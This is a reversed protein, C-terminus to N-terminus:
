QRLLPQVNYPQKLQQFQVMLDAVRQLRTKNLSIPYSGVTMTSATKSDIDKIYTPLIQEVQRRDAAATQAKIMARQFAAVTKPNKKWFSEMGVFGAISLGETPGTATDLVEVVGLKEQAETLFPENFWAADVAGKQLTGPMQPFPVEVLKVSNPDVGAAKLSSSLVLPGFGKLNNIAIKKGALDAPKRVGANPMAGVVILHEKAAYGDVAVRLQIGKSAATIVGPYSSWALDVGGSQLRTIAEAGNALFTPEVTLGEAKFYGNRVALWLPADDVVPLGGVKITSKELGSSNEKSDSSGGCGTVISAALTIAAAACTWHRKM